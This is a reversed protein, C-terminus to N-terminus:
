EAAKRAMARSGPVSDAAGHAALGDGRVFPPPKVAPLSRLVGLGRGDQDNSRAARSAAEQLGRRLDQAGSPQCRPEHHGVDYLVSRGNPSCRQGNRARSCAPASPRQLEEVLNVEDAAWAAAACGLATRGRM